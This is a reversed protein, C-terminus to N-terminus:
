CEWEPISDGESCFNDATFNLGLDDSIKKLIEYSKVPNFFCNQKANCSESCTLVVNFPHNIIDREIRAKSIDPFFGRLWEVSGSGQRICHAVQAKHNPVDCGCTQCLWYDRVCITYKDFM